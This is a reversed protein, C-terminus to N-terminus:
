SVSSSLIPFPVLLTSCITTRCLFVCVCLLQTFQMCRSLLSVMTRTFAVLVVSYYTKQKFVANWEYGFNFNVPLQDPAFTSVIFPLPQSVTTVTKSSLAKELLHNLPVIPQYPATLPDNTSKSVPVAILMYHSGHLLGHYCHCKVIQQVIGSQGLDRM